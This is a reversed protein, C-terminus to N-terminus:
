VDMANVIMMLCPFTITIKEPCGQHKCINPKGRLDGQFVSRIVRITHPGIRSTRTTQQSQGRSEGDRRILVLSCEGARSTVTRFRSSQIAIDLSKRWDWDSAPRGKSTDSFINLSHSTLSTRFREATLRGNRLVTEQGQSYQLGTFAQVFSRFLM